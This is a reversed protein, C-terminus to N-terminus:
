FDSVQRFDALSMGDCTVHPLEVGDLKPVVRVERDLMPGVQPTPRRERVPPLRAVGVPQLHHLKLALIVPWRAVRREHALGFPHLGAANEEGRLGRWEDLMHSLHRFIYTAFQIGNYSKQTDSM